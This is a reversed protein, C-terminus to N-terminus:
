NSSYMPPSPPVPLVFAIHATVVNKLHMFLSFIRLFHAGLPFAAENIAPLM